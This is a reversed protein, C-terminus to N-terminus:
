YSEASMLRSHSIIEGLSHCGRTSHQKQHPYLIHVRYAYLVATLTYRNGKSSPPYFEGILDICILEM